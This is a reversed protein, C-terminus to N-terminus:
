VERIRPADKPPNFFIVTVFGFGLTRAISLVQHLFEWPVGQETLYLCCGGGENDTEGAGSRVSM